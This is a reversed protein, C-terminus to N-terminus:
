RDARPWINLFTFHHVHHSNANWVAETLGSWDFSPAHALNETVANDPQSFAAESTRLWRCERFSKWGHQIFDVSPYSGADAVKAVTYCRCILHCCRCLPCRSLSLRPPFSRNFPILRLGAIEGVSPSFSVPNLFVVSDFSSDTHAASTM